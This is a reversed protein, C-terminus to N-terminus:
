GAPKWLDKPLDYPFKLLNTVGARTQILVTAQHSQCDRPDISLALKRKWFILCISLIMLIGKHYMGLDNPLINSMLIEMQLPPPLRSWPEWGPAALLALSWLPNCSTCLIRYNNISWWKHPNNDKRWVLPVPIASGDALLDYQYDRRMQISLKMTWVLKEPEPLASLFEKNLNLVRFKRVTEEMAESIKVLTLLPQKFDSCTLKFRKKITPQWLYKYGFKLAGMIRIKAELKILPVAHFTQIVGWNQVQSIKMDEPIQNHPGEIDM